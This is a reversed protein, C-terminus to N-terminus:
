IMKISIDSQSLSGFAGLVHLSGPPLCHCCPMRPQRLQTDSARQAPFVGAVPRNGECFALLVSSQYDKRSQRFFSNSFCDITPLIVWTGRSLSAAMECVINESSNLHIFLKATQNFKVSTQGYPNLQCCDLMPKSWPKAGFLRCTMIQDLASGIWQRMYAGSPPSSNFRRSAWTFNM